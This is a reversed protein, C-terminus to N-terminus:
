ILFQQYFVHLPVTRILPPAHAPPLTYPRSNHVISKQVVYTLPTLLAEYVIPKDISLHKAFSKSEDIQVKCSQTKCCKSKKRTVKCCCKSKQKQGNLSFSQFIKGCFHYSVSAGSINAAFLGILLIAILKRVKQHTFYPWLIIM